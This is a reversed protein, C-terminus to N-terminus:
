FLPMNCIIIDAGYLKTLKTPQACGVLAFLGESPETLKVANVLINTFKTRDTEM